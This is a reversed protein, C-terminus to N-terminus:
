GAASGRENAIAEVVDTLQDMAAALEQISSALRSSGPDPPLLRFGASGETLDAVFERASSIQTRIGDIRSPDTM